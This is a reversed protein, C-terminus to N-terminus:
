EERCRQWGGAASHMQEWGNPLKRMAQGGICAMGRAKASASGLSPLAIVDKSPGPRGVRRAEASLVDAELGECFSKMTPHPHGAYQECNFPTTDKAMSNYAAKPTSTVRPAAPGVATRIRQALCDRAFMFSLLIFFSGHMFPMIRAKHFNM